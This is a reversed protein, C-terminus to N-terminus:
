LLLLIVFCLFAIVGVSPRGILKQVKNFQTQSCCWHVIISFNLNRWATLLQYYHSPLECILYLSTLLQSTPFEAFANFLQLRQWASNNLYRPIWTMEQLWWSLVHKIWVPWNHGVLHQTWLASFINLMFFM